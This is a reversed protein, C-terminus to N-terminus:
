KKDVDDKSLVSAFENFIMEKPETQLPGIEFTDSLGEIMERHYTSNGETDEVRIVVPMKFSSEVKKTTVNATLYHGDARKEMTYEVKYEPINRGYIWHAWFWDLPAGYHKEALKMLSENTYQGMNARIKLENLFQYFKAENHTELDYMMYRLMHIVWSGKMRRNLAPVRRGAALPWDEDNEVLTYVENRRRLLEGFFVSPSVASSVNMLSLYDPVADSLWYERDTQPRMLSGFWQFAAMWAADMPLGGTGDQYCEVQSVGMLGPMTKGFEPYITMSFTGVPPGLKSCLFDFAGTVTTRYYEDPIFCNQRGKSQHQSKLFNLTMGVESVVPITEFGGAYQHFQWKRYPQSPAVTFKERKGNESEEAVMDPMLYTYGKPIDFTLKHPSPKPNEVFPLAPNYDKGHYFLRLTITDGKYRYEPLIVGLFAFTRRRWYDVPVGDCYLSDLKLNHHLYLNMFKLSDVDIQINVEIDAAEIVQGDLGTMTLNGERSLITTPYQIDSMRLDDYVGKERRQMVAGNTCVQDGGEHEYGVIVEEPRNPDFTFTYRNFDIWFYGDEAREYLSRLLQFYNDYEHMVVPKFFFEGQQSKRFDGWPLHTQEFTFQERLRLDFDDSFNIMVTEFTEDVTSDGAAYWLSQRETHSPIDITAHGTGLFIATTPRGEVERLLYMKGETFTFTAVDKVYVFNSIEAIEAPPKTALESGMLEYSNEFAKFFETESQGLPALMLVIVAVALVLKSIM